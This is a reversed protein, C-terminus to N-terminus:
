KTTIIFKIIKTNTNIFFKQNNYFHYFKYSDFFLSNNIMYIELIIIRKNHFYNKNFYYCFKKM